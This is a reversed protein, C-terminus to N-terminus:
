SRNKYTKRLFPNTWEGRRFRAYRFQLFWTRHDRCPWLGVAKFWLRLCFSLVCKSAHSNTHSNIILFNCFRLNLCFRVFADGGFFKEDNAFLDAREQPGEKRSGGTTSVTPMLMPVEETPVRSGKGSKSTEVSIVIMVIAARYNFFSYDISMVKNNLM